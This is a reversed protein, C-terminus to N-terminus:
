KLDKIDVQFVIKLYIKNFTKRSNFIKGSLHKQSEPSVQKLISNNKISVM